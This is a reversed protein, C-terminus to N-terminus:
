PEPLLRIAGFMRGAAAGERRYSYCDDLHDATCYRAVHIADAAVGAELLQDRNARWLDLRWHDDGDPTLWESAGRSGAIMAAHVPGDVQYCCSGICPGIAAVLDSASVGNRALVEVTAVVVRSATGRWGAHVAAVARHRRDAILIPVCDAVAVAVARLPDASVLADAPQGSSVERGERVEVVGCGHVQRVRAISTPELDMLAALASLSRNDGSRGIGFGRTTFGHRAYPQLSEAVLVRGDPTESWAFGPAVEPTAM